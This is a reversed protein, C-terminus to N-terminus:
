QSLNYKNQTAANKRITSLVIVVLNIFFALIVIGNFMGSWQRLDANMTLNAGIRMALTLHLLVLWIYLTPHYPKFYIGAVGPLIIPAHAFIMSFVFGIFFSHLAADYLYGFMEGRAFLIGSILLWAYGAILASGSYRSLGERKLAKGAMDFKLLWIASVILGTALLYKGWTHFPLLLGLVFVVVSGVLISLKFRNIPLFKTLELREGVITLFLFGTWWSSAIIYQNKLLLLLNGVLWCMAGALMIIHYMEKTKQYFYVFMSTLGVGAIVLVIKAAENLGTLFLLISTGSILPILFILKKKIVVARELCVLTGIFSGVMIAGHQGAYSAPIDIWGIRYLGSLLGLLLGLIVFPIVSIKKANDM